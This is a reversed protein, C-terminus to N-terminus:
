SEEGWEWQCPAVSVLSVYIIYQIYTYIYLEELNWGMWDGFRVPEMWGAWEKDRGIKYGM